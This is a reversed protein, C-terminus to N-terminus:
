LVTPLLQATLVFSPLKIKMQKLFYSPFQSSTVPIQIWQRNETEIEFLFQVKAVDFLSGEASSCGIERELKLLYM